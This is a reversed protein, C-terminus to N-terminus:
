IDIEDIPHYLNSLFFYKKACKEMKNKYENFDKFKSKQLLNDFMKVNPPLVIELPEFGFMTLNFKRINLYFLNEFFYLFKQDLIDLVIKQNENKLREIIKKNEFKNYKKYKTSIPENYLIDKITKNNLLKRFNQNINSKFKGKLDLFFYNLKLKKMVTNLFKILFTSYGTQIKAMKCDNKTSPHQINYNNTRRGRRNGTSNNISSFNYEEINESFIIDPKEQSFPLIEHSIPLIIGPNIYDTINNEFYQSQNLWNDSSDDNSVIFSKEEDFVQSSGM